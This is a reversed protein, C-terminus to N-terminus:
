NRRKGVKSVQAMNAMTKKLVGKQKERRKTTRAGAIGRRRQAMTRIVQKM